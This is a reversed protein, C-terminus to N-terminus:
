ATWGAPCPSGATRAPRTANADAAEPSAGSKGMFCRVRVARHATRASVPSCAWASYRHPLTYWSRGQSLLTSCFCSMFDPATMTVGAVGAGLGAAGAAGAAAAAGTLAAGAGAGAAAGEVAGAGAAATAGAAGAAGALGATTAAGGTAAAVGVAGFCAAGAAGGAGAGDAAGAGAAAAAAAATAAALDSGLPLLLARQARSPVCSSLTSDLARAPPVAASM